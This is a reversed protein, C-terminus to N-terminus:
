EPYCFFDTTSLFHIYETLFIRSYINFCCTNKLVAPILKENAQSTQQIKEVGVIKKNKKM